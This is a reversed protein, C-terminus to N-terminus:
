LGMNPCSFSPRSARLEDEGGSGGALGGVVAHNYAAVM